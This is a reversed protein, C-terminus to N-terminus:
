SGEDEQMEDGMDDTMDEDTMDDDTMEDDQMEEELPQTDVPDDDDGCGAATLGVAVFLTLALRTSRNMRHM